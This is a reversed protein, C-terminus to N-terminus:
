LNAKGSIYEHMMDRLTKELPTDPVWGILNELRTTDAARRPYGDPRSTDFELAAERGSLRLITEALERISVERRHGINVIELPAPKGEYQTEPQLLRETLLMLAKAIDRADVLARTQNGSGWVTVPDEGEMVRRILAPAVHSTERDYYDRPGLANFFRVILCAQNHEKSLHRVMQEGLWKAVGYGHNTPEPNGVDGASEPTPVPADHPYICATSVYVFLRPKVQRVTEIVNTNIKLNRELMEYQNHRNYEIGTVKAALHYVIEGAWVNFRHKSLDLNRLQVDGVDQAGRLNAMNGRSYDDLIRVSAGAWALRDVLHSGIFGAGGTVVASQQDWQM